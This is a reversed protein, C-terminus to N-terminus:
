ATPASSEPATASKTPSPAAIWKTAVSVRSEPTMTAHAIPPREAHLPQIRAATRMM